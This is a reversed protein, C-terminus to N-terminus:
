GALGDRIAGTIDTRITKAALRMSRELAQANSSASAAVIPHAYGLLPAGGYEKWDAISRFQRMNESVVQLAMRWRLSNKQASSTLHEVVQGVGELLKIVTSGFAGSCVIVDATGRTIDLGDVTGVYELGPDAKLIEAAELAEAPGCTGGVTSTLVAVRPRTNKSIRSAYAGGMRAYCVLAQPSADFAMGVDLLLVFPDANHGRRRATPYVACLAPQVVGPLVELHKHAASTIDAADAATVLSGAQKALVAFAADTSSESAHQVMLRAPDHVLTRLKNTISAEHGVLVLDLDRETSIKSAAELIAGQLEPTGSVDVIISM